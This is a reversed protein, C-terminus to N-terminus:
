ARKRRLVVFAAVGMIGMLILSGPEPIAYNAYSLNSITLESSNSISNEGYFMFSDIFSDDLLLAKGIGTLIKSDNVWIDVTNAALINEGYQISSTSNNGFIQISYQTEKAFRTTSSQNWAGGERVSSTISEEGMVWQLGTFTQNGAFGSNNSFNAGDGIVMIWTGSVSNNFSIDFNFTFAKGPTYDYISFKNHSGGSASTITLAGDSVEFGGGANNGVRVRATGGGSPPVPLFTTSVTNNTTFAGDDGFDYNWISDGLALAGTLGLAATLLFAKTKM